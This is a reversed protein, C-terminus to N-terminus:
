GDAFAVVTATFRETVAGSGDDEGLWNHSFFCGTSVMMAAGTALNAFMTNDMVVGTSAAVLELCPETGIDDSEGNVLTNDKILLRTSKTTLGNICATSYDGIVFNGIIQTGDTDKTLSIASVAGGGAVMDFYNNAIYAYNSADNTRVSVLFEDTGETETTFRCDEVSCYDVGDEIEVAVKVVTIAARLRLGKISVNDATVSIEADAHDYDIQPMLSGAGLGVVAMGAVDFTIDTGTINEVHGPMVVVIDGRNATCRGIAYDITSWPKTYTGPNGNSGGIGGDALVSSNNVWYMNGPHVQQIPVGRITVGNMFGSPFNSIPM